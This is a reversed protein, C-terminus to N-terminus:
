HNNFHLKRLYDTVSKQSKDCKTVSKLSCGLLTEKIQCSSMTIFLWHYFKIQNPSWAVNLSMENWSNVNLLMVKTFLTGIFNMLFIICEPLIKARGLRNIFSQTMGVNEVNSEVKLKWVSFGFSKCYISSTFTFSIRELKLSILFRNSKSKSEWHPPPNADDIIQTVRGGGGRGGGGREVQFQKQAKEISKFWQLFADIKRCGNKRSFSYHTEVLKKELM